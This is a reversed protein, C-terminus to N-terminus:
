RQTNAPVRAGQMFRYRHVTYGLGASALIAAIAVLFALALNAQLMDPRQAWLLMLCSFGVGLASLPIERSAEDDTSSSVLFTLLNLGCSLLTAIALVTCLFSMTM